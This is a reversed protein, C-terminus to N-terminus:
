FLRRSDEIAVPNADKQSVFPTTPETMENGDTNAAVNPIGEVGMHSHMDVIGLVIM